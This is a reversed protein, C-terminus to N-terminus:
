CVMRLAGAQEESKVEEGSSASRKGRGPVKRGSVHVRAPAAAQKGKGGSPTGAAKGKSGKGPKAGAPSSAASPAGAGDAQGPQPHLRLTWTVLGAQQLVFLSFLAESVWSQPEWVM